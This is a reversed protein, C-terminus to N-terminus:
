KMESCPYMSKLYIIGDYFLPWNDLQQLHRIGAMYFTDNVKAYRRRFSKFDFFAASYGKQFLWGEVSEKEPSSFKYSTGDWNKTDGEYSTFGIVYSERERNATSVFRSGMNRHRIKDGECKAIHYSAAWVVIKKEAFKVDSLWALNEAMMSDRIQMKGFYDNRLMLTMSSQLNSLVMFTITNVKGRVKLGQLLTDLQLIALPYSSKDVETPYPNEVLAKLVPLLQTGFSKTSVFPIDYSNLDSEINEIAKRSYGFSRTPDIGALILPRESALSKKAFEFLARNQPCDTWVHFINEAILQDFPLLGQNVLNWGETLGCFDSEFVLVDFGLKNYLYKVLRSKIQFTAADGHDQEGLMVVRADGIAKGIAVFDSDDSRLEDANISVATSQIHSKILEQSFALWSNCVLLFVFTFRKM